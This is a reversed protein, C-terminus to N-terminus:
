LDESLKSVMRLIQVENKNHHPQILLAWQRGARFALEERLNLAEALQRNWEVKAIKQQIHQHKKAFAQHEDVLM